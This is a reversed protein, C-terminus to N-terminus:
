VALQKHLIKRRPRRLSRAFAETEEEEMQFGMQLYLREAPANDAVVHVYLHRVGQSAAHAEAALMLARAVGRRRVASAVCVNSLYARTLLASGDQM